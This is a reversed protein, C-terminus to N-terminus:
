LDYEPFTALWIDYECIEALILILSYSKYSCLPKQSVVQLREDRSGNNRISGKCAISLCEDIMTSGAMGCRRVGAYDNMTSEHRETEEVYM